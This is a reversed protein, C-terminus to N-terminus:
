PKFRTRSKESRAAYCVMTSSTWLVWNKPQARSATGRRRGGGRVDLDCGRALAARLAAALALKVLRPTNIESMVALAIVHASQTVPQLGLRVAGVPLNQHYILVDIQEGLKLAVTDPEM